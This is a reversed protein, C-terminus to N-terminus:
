IDCVAQQVYKSSIREIEDFDGNEILKMDYLASGIGFGCVGSKLFDSMNDLNVGGVALLNVNNLPAKIAKVYRSGLVETPFLKVFEAGANVCTVIETPTMAGPLVLINKAVCYRIVEVDVNPTVIFEAGANIAKEADKINLVTGAGIYMKNKYLESLSKISELANASNLTIESFKIGASYFAEFLRNNYETPVNRIIAVLKKELLDNKLKEM